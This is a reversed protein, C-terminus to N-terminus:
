FTYYPMTEGSEPIILYKSYYTYISLLLEGEFGQPSMDYFPYPLGPWVGDKSETSVPYVASIDCVVGGPKKLICVAIEEIKGEKSVAYLPL